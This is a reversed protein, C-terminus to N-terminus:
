DNVIEFFVRDNIGLLTRFYAEADRSPPKKANM